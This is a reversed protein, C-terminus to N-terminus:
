GPEGSKRFEHSPRGRGAVHGQKAQRVRGSYLIWLAAIFLAGEVRQVIDHLTLALLGGAELYVARDIAPSIVQGILVILLFVM